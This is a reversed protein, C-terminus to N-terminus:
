GHGHVLIVESISHQPLTRSELTTFEMSILNIGLAAM